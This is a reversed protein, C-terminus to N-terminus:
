IGNQFYKKIIHQKIKQNSFSLLTLKLTQVELTDIPLFKIIQFTNIIIFVKM